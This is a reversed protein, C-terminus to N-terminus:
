LLEDPVEVEVGFKSAVYCRMAAILPTAGHYDVGDGKWNRCDWRILTCDDALLPELTLLERAIVPGGQSWDTAYDTAPFEMGICNTMSVSSYAEGEIKAVLYNLQDTSLESVKVKM